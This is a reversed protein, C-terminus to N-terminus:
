KNERAKKKTFVIEKDKVSEVQGLAKNIERLFNRLASREREVRALLLETDAKIKNLMLQANVRTVVIQETSPTGLQVSM